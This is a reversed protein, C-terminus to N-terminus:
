GFSRPLQGREIFGVLIDKGIRSIAPSPDIGKVKVANSIATALEFAQGADLNRAIRGVIQWNLSLNPQAATVGFQKAARTVAQDISKSLMAASVSVPKKGSPM